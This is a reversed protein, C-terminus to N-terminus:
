WNCSRAILVALNELGVRDEEDFSDELVCDIDIIAVVNGDSIVPVVIESKSDSDCAIHGPYRDVNAVLQTEARSAATGCVGKGFAITQCAM